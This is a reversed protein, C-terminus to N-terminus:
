SDPMLRYLVIEADASFRVKKDTMGVGNTIDLVSEGRVIKGRLYKEYGKERFFLDVIPIYVQGGHSHGALVYDVRDLPLSDFTDPCHTLVITYYYPNVGEFASDPDPRGMDLSDIGVLNISSDKDAFIRTSTNTIIRFDASTLIEEVTEKVALNDLDQDGLVAYKGYPAKLSKLTEILAQKQEEKLPHDSLHDVLDGGFLIVDPTYGNIMDAMKKVFADDIFTGYHLDSFYAIQLGQLDNDIKASTLTEERVTLQKPNAIFANVLCLGIVLLSIMVITLIKKWKM